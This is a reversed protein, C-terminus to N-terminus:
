IQPCHHWIPERIKGPFSHEVRYGRTRDCGYFDRNNCSFGEQIEMPQGTRCCEGVRCEKRHNGQQDEQGRNGDRDSEAIENRM